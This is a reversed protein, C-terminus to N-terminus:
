AETKSSQHLFGSIFSYGLGLRFVSEPAFYRPIGRENDTASQSLLTFNTASGFDSLWLRNPSLLINSPKLDKHRIKQEHLYTIASVLCGVQSYVPSAMRREQSSPFDYNLVTLRAKHILDFAELRAERVDDQLRTTSWAEVDEFFIHLDCVAIPYLLFGLYRQQTYTGILQLVHVHSLRKIIEIERKEKEGIRRRFPVRKHALKWGQITTEHVDGMAGRGLFRGQVLPVAENDGFEVHSGRSTQSWDEIAVDSERRSSTENILTTDASLIGSRAESAQQETDGGKSANKSGEGLVSLESVSGEEKVDGGDSAHEHDM